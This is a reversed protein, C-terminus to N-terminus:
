DEEDFCSALNSDYARLEYGTVGYFDMLREAIKKQEEITNSLIISFEAILARVLEQREREIIYMTSDGPGRDMVNLAMCILREKIIDM